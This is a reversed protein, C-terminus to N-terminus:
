GGWWRVGFGYALELYSEVLCQECPFDTTDTPASYYIFRKVITPDGFLTTQWVSDVKIMESAFRSWKEGQQADLKYVLAFASSGGQAYPTWVQNLSDIIYQTSSEYYPPSVYRKKQTTYIKGDMGISDQVTFVQLTDLPYYPGNDEIYEWMDGLNHPFFNKSSDTQSYVAISFLLLLFLFLIKKM